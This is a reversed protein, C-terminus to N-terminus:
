HLQNIIKGNKVALLSGRPIEQWDDDSLPVSAFVLAHNDTDVPSTINLGDVHLDQREIWHLAPAVAPGLVGDVDNRRVDAHIFLTDGDSYLFNCSGLARLEAAVYGLIELRREVSPIGDQWLPDLQNLLYCFAFESDTEGMPLHQPANLTLAEQFDVLTGNHAFVHARGYAERKFPHTNEYKPEGHSARRVHAITCSSKTRHDRIFEIWPSDYAPKAEKILLTDIDMQFSLGWGSNNAHSLGGHRSFEHLSYNIAVPYRSSIALLECM